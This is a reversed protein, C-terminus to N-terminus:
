PESQMVVRFGIAEKQGIFRMNPEPLEFAHYSVEGFRGGGHLMWTTPTPGPTAPHDYFDQSWEWVNGDLDYIGFSNPEGMAVPKVFRRADFRAERYKDRYHDSQWEEPQPFIGIRLSQNKGATEAVAKWHGLTPLQTQPRRLNKWRSNLWIAFVEATARDIGVVPDVPSQTYGPNKWFEGASRYGRGEEQVFRAFDMVRTEWISWYLGGVRAFRMGLDNEIKGHALANWVPDVRRNLAELDSTWSRFVSAAEVLSAIALGYQQAKQARSARDHLGEPDALFSLDPPGIDPFFGAWSNKAQQFETLAAQFSEELMASARANFERFRALAQDAHNGQFSEM